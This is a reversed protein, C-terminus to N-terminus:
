LFKDCRYVEYVPLLHEELVRGVAGSFCALIMVGDPHKVTKEIFHYYYWSAGKLRRVRGKRLQVCRFCRENSFM